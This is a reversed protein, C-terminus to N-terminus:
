EKVKNSSYEQFKNNVYMTIGLASGCYTLAQGLIMIVSNDVIGAPPLFFSIFTLAWGFIFSLIATLYYLNKKKM